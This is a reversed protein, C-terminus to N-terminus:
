NSFEGTILRSSIWGEGINLWYRDGSKEVQYVYVPEGEKVRGVIKSNIDPSKRVQGKKTDITFTKDLFDEESYIETYYPRGDQGYSNNARLEELDYTKDNEENLDESEEARRAEENAILASESEEKIQWIGQSDPLLDLYSTALNKATTYDGKEMYTRLEEIIRDEIDSLLRQGERYADGKDEPIARINKIAKDYDGKEISRRIFDLDEEYPSSEENQRLNEGEKRAPRLIFFLGILLGLGIVIFILPNKKKERKPVTMRGHLSNKVQDKDLRETDNKRADELKSGCKGCFKDLPGNKHGCNKCIM